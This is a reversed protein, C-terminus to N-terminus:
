GSTASPAESPAAGTIVRLSVSSACIGAVEFRGTGWAFTDGVHLDQASSPPDGALLLNVTPVGDQVRLSAIDVAIQDPTRLARPLDGPVGQRLRLDGKPCTTPLDSMTEESACATTVILLSLIAAARPVRRDRSM